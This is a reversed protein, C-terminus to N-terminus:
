PADRAEAQVTTLWALAERRHLFPRLTTPNILASVGVFATLLLRDIESGVLMATKAGPGRLPAIRAGASAVIEFDDYVFSHLAVRRLDWLANPLRRRAHEAMMTDIVMAPDYLGSCLFYVVPGAASVEVQMAM